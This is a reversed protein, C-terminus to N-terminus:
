RSFQVVVVTPPLLNVRVKLAEISPPELGDPLAKVTFTFPLTTLRAPELGTAMDPLVTVNVRAGM